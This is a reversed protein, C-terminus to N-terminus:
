DSFPALDGMAYEKKFGLWGGWEYYINIRGSEDKCVFANPKVYPDHPDDPLEKIIQEAEKDM